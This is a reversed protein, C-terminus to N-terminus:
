DQNYYDMLVEFVKELTKEERAKRAIRFTLKYFNENSQHTKILEELKDDEMKEIEQDSKFSYLVSNYFKVIPVMADLYRNPFRRCVETSVSNLLKLDGDINRILQPSDDKLRDEPNILGYAINTDISFRM